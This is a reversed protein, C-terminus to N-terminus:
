SVVRCILRIKDTSKPPCEPRRCDAARLIAAPCEAVHALLQALAGCQEYKVLALHRARPDELDHSLNMVASRLRTYSYHKQRRRDQERSQALDRIVPRQRRADQKRAM